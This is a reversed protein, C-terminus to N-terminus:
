LEDTSPSDMCLSPIPSADSGLEPFLELPADGSVVAPTTPLGPSEEAPAAASAAAAAGAVSASGASAAPPAPAAEAVAAAPPAASASAATGAAASDGASATPPARMAEAAAAVPLDASTAEAGAATAEGASAPPPTPAPTAEAAAAVPLDASTAAAGAASAEGASASPPTPAPEAATAAIAPESGATVSGEPLAPAAAPLAEAPPPVEATAAVVAPPQEPPPQPASLTAEVPAAPAETPAEPATPGVAPAVAAAPGDEEEEEATDADAVSAEPGAGRVEAAQAAAPPAAAPVEPWTFSVVTPAADSSGLGPGAPAGWAGAAAVVANRVETARAAVVASGPAAASAVAAHRRHAAAAADLLAAFADRLSPALPVVGLRPRQHLAEVVDLLALMSPVDRCVEQCFDAMMAAQTSAADGGASAAQDPTPTCLGSWLIRAVRECLSAVQPPSLLPAALTALRALLRCAEPFAPHAHSAGSTASDAGGSFAEKAKRKRRASAGASPESPQPAAAASRAAQEAPQAVALGFSLMHGVLPKTLLVAPAVRGLALVLSCTVKCHRWHTSPPVEMLIELWRRARAAHPLLAVGAAEALAAALVLAEELVAALARAAGGRGAGLVRAATASDRFVATVVADIMGVLRAVPLVFISDDLCFGKDRKGYTQVASLGYRMLSRVLSLLRLCQLQALRSAATGGAGSKAAAEVVRFVEGFEACATAIAEETSPVAHQLDPGGRSERAQLVKSSWTLRCLCLEAAKAVSDRPHVVLPWLMAWLAGIHGGLAVHERALLECCGETLAEQVQVSKPHADLAARLQPVVKRSRVQKDHRDEGPGRYAATGAALACLARAAAAVTLPASSALASTLGAYVQDGALPAVGLAQADVDALAILLAVSGVLARHGDSSQLAAGAAQLLGEPNLQERSEAADFAWLLSQVAAGLDKAVSPGLLDGWAPGAPRKTM